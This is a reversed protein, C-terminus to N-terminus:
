LDGKYVFVSQLLPEVNLCRQCSVSWSIATCYEGKNHMLQRGCCTIQHNSLQIIVITCYSIMLLWRTPSQVGSECFEPSTVPTRHTICFHLMCVCLYLYSVKPSSTHKFLVSTVASNNYEEFCDENIHIKIKGARPCAFVFYFFHLVFVLM